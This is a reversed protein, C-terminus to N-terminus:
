QILRSILNKFAQIGNQKNKGHNEKAIRAMNNLTEKPIIRKGKIILNIQAQLSELKEKKSFISSVGLDILEENGGTRLDDQLAIITVNNETSNIRVLEANNDKNTEFILIGEKPIYSDLLSKMTRFVIVNNFNASQLFFKRLSDAYRINQNVIILDM